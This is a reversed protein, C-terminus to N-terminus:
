LIERIIRRIDNGTFSATRRCKSCRLPTAGMLSTMPIKCEPCYAEDQISGSVRRFLVGRHEMYEDPVAKKQLEGQLERVQDILEKNEAQLRDKEQEVREFQERLADVRERLISASGHETILKEIAAFLKTMAIM